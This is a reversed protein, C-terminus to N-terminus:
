RKLYKNKLLISLVLILYKWLLPRRHIVTSLSAIFLAERHLVLFLVPCTFLLALLFKIKMMLRMFYIIKPTRADTTFSNNFFDLSLLELLERIGIFKYDHDRKVRYRFLKWINKIIM